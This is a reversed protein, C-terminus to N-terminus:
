DTLIYEEVIFGDLENAIEHAADLNINSIM